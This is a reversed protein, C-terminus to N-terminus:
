VGLRGRLRSQLRSTTVGRQGHTGKVAPRAAYHAAAEATQGGIMRRRSSEGGSLDEEPGIVRRRSGQRAIAPIVERDRSGVKSCIQMKRALGADKKRAKPGGSRVEGHDGCKNKDASRWSRLRDAASM